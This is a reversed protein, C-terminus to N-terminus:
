SCVRAHDRCRRGGDGKRPRTVRIGIARLSTGTLSRATAREDTHAGGTETLSEEGVVTWVHVAIHTVVLRNHDAREKITLRVRRRFVGHRERNVFEIAFKRLCTRVRKQNDRACPPTVSFPGRVVERIFETSRREHPRDVGVVDREDNLM